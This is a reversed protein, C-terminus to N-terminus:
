AGSFYNIDIDYPQDGQTLVGSMKKGNEFVNEGVLTASRIRSRTGKKGRSGPDPITFSVPDLVFMGSRIKSFKTDTKQTQLLDPDPVDRIRLVTTLM